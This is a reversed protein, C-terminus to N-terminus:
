HHKPKVVAAASWLLLLGCCFFLHPLGIVRPSALPVCGCYVFLMGGYHSSGWIRSDCGDTYMLTHEKMVDQYLLEQVDPYKALAYMCWYLWTSMIEHGAM